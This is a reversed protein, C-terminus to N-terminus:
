NRGDPSGQENAALLAAEREEARSEIRILTENLALRYSPVPLGLAKMATVMQKTGESLAQVYAVGRPDRMLKLWELLKPNRPMSDLVVDALSFAPPLDADRQLMRGPNKVVFADRYSECEVPIPTRYDRHAVANVIAEDIVTPPFEPEEVFGGAERRKQYRKFFASERFFTRAERIQKTVPGAFKRDFTPLGRRAFDESTVGFRMLRIYSAPLVRQPNSGFFLLGAHTFWYEGKRRVLAGAEHLLREDPFDGTADPSFVKRFEVLVDDSLDARDYPCCFTNEFDSLHKRDRLRDRAAQTVPVNQPGRREWAKPAFGPTECIGRHAYPAFILCISNGQGSVDVCRHLRAEAAQNHLLSEFNTLGNKQQETLHDIGKVDGNSAVGIVLLGGEVNSNAFASITETIGERLQSLQNKLKRADSTRQGAEKRDFHQGEFRDDSPQTLFAWHSAPDDYVARPSPEMVVDERLSESM